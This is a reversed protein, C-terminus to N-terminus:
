DVVEAPIASMDPEAPSDGGDDLVEAGRVGGSPMPAVAGGDDLIEVGRVPQGSSESTEDDDLVEAELAHKSCLDKPVTGLLNEAYATKARRCGAHALMGSERCILVAGLKEGAKMRLPGCPYGSKEAAKMVEAWVPLALVSGYGQNIIKQPRDLGIWVCGTLNQTFGVFWANTYNDTTGTKGGCPKTFGMSKMNGATGGPQTVRELIRTVQTAARESFVRTATYTSFYVSDGKSDAIREIVYPTPRVGGNGFTTYAAAVEFPTADFTGLYSAPTPSIPSTFGALRSFRIVNDMGAYQGIRVSMTNRSKVLGFWAPQNGLYKGDSNRPSWRGAKSIEGPVLPNDSVSSESSLGKEFAAAYVIPKYISGIQRRAQIARNFKSEEADRGGVMVLTAGSTNDLVVVSGQVYRPSKTARAEKTMSGYAEKTPHAYGKIKEMSGLKQNLADVAANQLDLDLTTSVVLGGLQIDEEDLVRELERRIVDMAYNEESRSAPPHVVIPSEKAQVYEAHTIKGESLMSDLVLDRCRKAGEPNKIPSFENPGYIIGALTACESLTLDAPEKGFYCRAASSIGLYTHGWFIRNLYAQFIEDKKYTAEIRKALAVELFKRHFSKEKLAFSNRALQMTLTSAGQTTRKHKAVQVLSRAVGIFDVGGHDYFRKDERILVADKLYPPIKDLPIVERNEGHLRGIERNKRDLVVTREPMKMVDSMDYRMALTGYVLCLVVLFVVGFFAMGLFLRLPWVILVNTGKTMVRIFRIPLMFLFWLVSWVSAGRKPERYYDEEETPKKRRRKESETPSFRPM